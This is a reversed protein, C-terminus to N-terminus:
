IYQQAALIQAAASYDPAAWQGDGRLFSNRDAATAQPVVGSRSADFTEVAEATLPTAIKDQTVAAPQIARSSVASDALKPETVAADAIKSTTVAGTALKPETVAGDAISTSSFTGQLQITPNAAARLAALDVPVNDPFTWGPTVIVTFTAM